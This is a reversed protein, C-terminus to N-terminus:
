GVDSTQGEYVVPLGVDTAVKCGRLRLEHALSAQYASELPGPGLTRHVKIAADVVQGSLENLEKTTRQTRNDNGQASM